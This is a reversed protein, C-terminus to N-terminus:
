MGAPAAHGATSVSCATAREIGTVVGAILLFVLCSVLM